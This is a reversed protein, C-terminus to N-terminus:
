SRCGPKMPARTPFAVIETICCFTISVSSNKKTFNPMHTPIRSNLETAETITGFSDTPLNRSKLTVPPACNTIGIPQEWADGSRPQIETRDSNSIIQQLQGLLTTKTLNQTSLQIKQGRVINRGNEAIVNAHHGHRPMFHRHVKSEVKNNLFIHSESPPLKSPLQIESIKSATRKKERKRM